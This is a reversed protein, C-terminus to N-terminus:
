VKPLGLAGLQQLISEFRLTLAKMDSDELFLAICRECERYLRDYAEVADSRGGEAASTRLSFAQADAGFLLHIIAHHPRPGSPRLTFSRLLWTISRVDAPKKAAESGGSPRGEDGESEAEILGRRVDELSANLEAFDNNRDFTELAARCDEDLRGLEELFSM